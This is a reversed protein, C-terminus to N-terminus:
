FSQWTLGYTHYRVSFTHGEIIGLEWKATTSASAMQGAASFTTNHNEENKALRPHGIGLYPDSIAVLESIALM